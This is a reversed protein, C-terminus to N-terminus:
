SEWIDTQSNYLLLIDINDVLTALSHYSTLVTRHTKVCMNTPIRSKTLRFHRADSIVVGHGTFAVGPRRLGVCKLKPVAYLHPYFVKMLLALKSKLSQAEM